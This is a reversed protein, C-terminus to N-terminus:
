FGRHKCRPPEHRIEKDSGAQQRHFYGDAYLGQSDMPIVRIDEFDDQWQRKMKKFLEKM